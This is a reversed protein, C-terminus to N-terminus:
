VRTRCASARSLGQPARTFGIDRVSRAPHIVRLFEELVSVCREEDQPALEPLEGKQVEVVVHGDREHHTDV